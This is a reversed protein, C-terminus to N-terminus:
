RSVDRIQPLLPKGIQKLYMAIPILKHEKTSPYWQWRYHGNVWWSHQYVRGSGEVEGNRYMPENPRARLTIISVEKLPAQKGAREYERRIPKPLRRELATTDVFPAQMFAMMRLLASIVNYADFGEFHEPWRAGWPIPEFMIHAQPLYDPDEPILYRDFILAAGADGMRTIHMWSTHSTSPMERGDETQLKVLPQNAPEVFVPREFCFFLDDFPMANPQFVHPVLPAATAAAYTNDHWLYTMGRMVRGVTEYLFENPGLHVHPNHEGGPRYLRADLIISTQRTKPRGQKNYADLTIAEALHIAALYQAGLAHWWDTNHVGRGTHELHNLYRQVLPERQLAQDARYLMVGHEEEGVPEHGFPGQLLDSAMRMAPSQRWVAERKANRERIGAHDDRVQRNLRRFFDEANKDYGQSM